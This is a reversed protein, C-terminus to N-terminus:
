NSFLERFRILGVVPVRHLDVKHDGNKDEYKLDYPSKLAGDPFYNKDHLLDDLSVWRGTKEYSEQWKRDIIEVNKKEVAMAREHLLTERGHAKTLVVLYDEQALLAKNNWGNLPSIGMRELMDVCDSPLAATPLAGELNMNRVIEVAFQEQTLTEELEEAKVTPAFYLLGFIACLIIHRKM